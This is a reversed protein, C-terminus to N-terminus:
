NQLTQLVNKEEKLKNNLKPIDMRGFIGGDTFEFTWKGYANRSANAEIVESSGNTLLAYYNGVTGCKVFSTILLDGTGTIPEAPFTVGDSADILSDTATAVSISCALVATALIQTKM